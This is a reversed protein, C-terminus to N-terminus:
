EKWAELYENQYPLNDLDFEVIKDGYWSIFKRKQFDITYVGECFLEDKEFESSDVLLVEGVSYAVVGLINACTDRSINPYKTSFDPDNFDITANLNDIEEDNAFRVRVLGKEILEHNYAQVLANVGQGSPYGDWQGYQAVRVIGDKDIVKTLNRTGM